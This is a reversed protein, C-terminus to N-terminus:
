AVEKESYNQSFLRLETDCTRNSLERRSAHHGRSAPTDCVAIRKRKLIGIISYPNRKEYFPKSLLPFSPGARQAVLCELMARVLAIM